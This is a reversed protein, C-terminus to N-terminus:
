PCFTKAIFKINYKSKVDLIYYRENVYKCRVVYIM